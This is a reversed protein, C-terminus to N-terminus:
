KNKELDIGVMTSYWEPNEATLTVNPNAISTKNYAKREAELLVSAAEETIMNYKLLDSVIETVTM